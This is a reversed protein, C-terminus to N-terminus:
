HPHFTLEDFALHMPAVIVRLGYEGAREIPVITQIEAKGWMRSQLSVRYTGPPLYIRLFFGDKTDCACLKKGNLLVNFNLETQDDGIRYDYITLIPESSTEPTNNVSFFRPQILTSVESTAVESEAVPQDTEERRKFLTGPKIAM